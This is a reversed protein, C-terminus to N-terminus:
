FKAQNRENQLIKQNEMLWITKLVLRILSMETFLTNIKQRCLNETRQKNRTSPGCASYAFAPLELHVGPMFKDGVLLFKNM